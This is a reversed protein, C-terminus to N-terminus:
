KKLGQIFTDLDLMGKYGLQFQVDNCQRKSNWFPLLYAQGLPTNPEVGLQAATMMAALFSMKDCQALKPTNRVATLVMRTFREPTIVSPLAKKIEGQMKKILNSLEAEPSITAAQTAAAKQIIGDNKTAM